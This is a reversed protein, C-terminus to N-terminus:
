PRAVEVSSSTAIGHLVEELIGDLYEKLAAMAKAPDEQTSVFDFDQIEGAEMALFDAHAERTLQAWDIDYDEDDDAPFIEVELPGCQQPGGIPASEDAELQVSGEATSM